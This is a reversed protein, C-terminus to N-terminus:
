PGVRPRGREEVRQDPAPHARVATAAVADRARRGAGLARLRQLRRRLARLCPRAEGAGQRSRRPAHERAAALARRERLHIGSPPAEVSAGAQKSDPEPSSATSPLRYVVTAGEDDIEVRAVLARILQRREHWTLRELGGRVRAAFDELRGSVARLTVTQTLKEDAKALDDRARQIRPRLRESRETLEKLDLAGAEYADLLRKHSREHSALVTAAEDRQARREDQGRDSAARRTWEQIVRSPDEMVRRVSEWVYDDLQESRVQGNTCVRGGAFRYADTGVCRYYAYRRGGKAASKSVTKGYYAYGCRACVTLGQLLYREGRANRQSLRQNRDLQDRVAAFVETSVIAPVPIHIWQEPSKDRYTSKSRRPSRAKARIPRLLRGREAAETKGYAARGVYAPNRLIGWVTTRDWRSAGRRTPVGEANLVRVIEGISKQERVLADFIWRVVKAEPPLVDYRAPETESKRVYRYGYPAGSMPNVTGLRARHLKGRRCRETIKAREYEAIMGQVQVLLADEATNTSPGQLFVVCTGRAAFEELLLVQYAYRRALRDPDHVYVIDIAGEAIRDRLRELAPRILTAGSFGDDVYLDGPLVHHGDALARARLADMQSGITAQQAQQESSVRAYLAITKM